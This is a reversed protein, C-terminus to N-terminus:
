VLAQIDQQQKIKSVAVLTRMRRSLETIIEKYKEVNVSMGAFKIEANRFETGETNFFAKRIQTKTIQSSM